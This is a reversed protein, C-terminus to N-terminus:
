KLKGSLMNSIQDLQGISLQNYTFDTPSQETTQKGTCHDILKLLYHQYQKALKAITAPTYQHRNYNFTMKLQGDNVMGNIDLTFARKMEPHIEIGVSLPSSQLLRQSSENSAEDFQGLYNFSIAPEQATRLKELPLSEQELTLYRLIGYGIGQNPVRRLGDKIEKLQYGLDDAHDINLIHPYMVTFWGVTRSIDINSFLSERGHGEVSVHIQSRGSWEYFTLGLATLLIDNIETNYAHNTQQLLRQTDEKSLTMVEERSDQEYGDDIVPMDQPLPEQKQSAWTNWYALEEIAKQENSYQDLRASWEAYSDSKSPFQISQKQLIQQYGVELDELLIRWSVGDVVLHHIVIFLQDEEPAQFLAARILPGQELNLSHQLRDAIQEIQEYAQTQSYQSYDHADLLYLHEEKISRHQASVIDKHQKYVMRLADHHEVVQQFVQNLVDIDIRNTSQLMVAQNYHQHQGLNYEFFRKQIPTLLAEGQVEDQSIQREVKEIYPAISVIDSYRFLDRIEMKLGQRNLRSAIQLAKISDGGYEFFNDTIGVQRIGLVEQWVNALIQQVETQPAEYAQTHRQNLDPEPLARRDIKGNATVPMHDLFVFHAPIMYEPVYLALFSRLEAIDVVQNLDPVIYACLEQGEDSVQRTMVHVESVVEHRFLHTEIEGLEIRYGRIKVQHDIRGLYEINGDPLWRALDGTRYMKQGPVFPNEIFKEATLEPRNLYGRALGVGSICLEGAVGIPQLHYQADVIFLQINDIPKGIPVKVVENTSPCDYYSVDVTAETPGYLNILEAGYHTAILRNFREVLRVPLAEGSAFVRRLSRIQHIRSSNELVDLFASLMSPVFHMTTVHHKEIETLIIEPDKEGGPPLLVVKAGVEGWWFLEWVSVDFSFPTKQLIVDETGLPYRNQMWQLRNIVSHHEIMAGKPRGTSGSTYIVYALNTSQSMPSLDHMHEDYMESEELIFTTGAFAISEGLHSQRLLWSTQSDELVFQIREEPHSPDIPLYAGGAKLIGLIGVVMELSREVMLGVIADPEVGQNRLKMALTNARANLETYTIQRDGCILAIHDPTKHVQKEWLQYLTDQEAYPAATHNFLFLQDQEEKQLLPIDAISTEPNSAIAILIAMYHNLMQQATEIRFLKTAYELSVILKDTFEEVNLTVDFKAIGMEFDVPRFTLDEVEIQKMGTNQLVFMVDFLPNRSVDRRLNLREVVEEFPIDQHEYATLTQQKTQELLQMFTQEPDIHTRIPLTNVFMGIIQEIDPHPRGAIPSGIVLDQQSTYRYLLSAYAALMVMYLTTGSKACLAYLERTLEPKLEQILSSGEFNKMVPRSWDTPLNLVPVDKGQDFLQEWYPLQKERTEEMMSQQWVAYDKYQIRLEPLEEQAYLRSFEEVFVEISIGDTIIHHMDALLIHHDNAVEILEVRLLPAQDLSFPRIFSEMLQAPDAFDDERYSVQFDVQPHIKQVPQGDVFHFSTRLSEHREVMAAFAKELRTQDLKGQLELVASMNYAQQTDGLQDIIFLRKQASSVDYYEQIPAVEIETYGTDEAGRVLPAMQRITPYAFVHRIPLEVGFQKTIRGVLMVAKLSHGGLEFFSDDIGVRNISLVDEWIQAMEVETTNRPKAYSSTTIPSDTPAPLAKRDIKGNPTLPLTELHVFHAPIMYVPLQALLITRLVQIDITGTVYACLYKDGQEDRRDTVIAQEVMSQALLVSEIEGLEIRYGRIKVQYDIRGIFDVQGDPLWRALDGTRYLRGKESFPNTIFKEASLETRNLYGRAVSQGGICLEGAVGVPVPRLYQDVIYFSHNALPRGIPVNGSVPLHDADEEYFSSDIAAETVGYSNMIRMRSGFRELLVRYDQVSCSDSSTILLKMTDLQIHQEYIEKMLPLILAPTSEFVTIQHKVLYQSLASPDIRVDQPCIVMTGGNLFTRAMDGAFVDFSFSAIQLLKVAFEKLRYDDRYGYATNVYQGHEIMVGKANGTTGSTYIIYALDSDDVSENEVVATTEREKLQDIYITQGTYNSNELASVLYSQSILLATGSDQLMYAIRESPYTPDVPIYAGGSKMVALAAIIMQASREVLIAVPHGRRVGQQQLVQALQNARANLENYSLEEYEDIVAIHDPTLLAQQEFLAHFTTPVRDTHPGSWNELIIMSEEKTMMNIEILPREPSQIAQTLVQILHGEIQKMISEDYKQRNYSLLITFQEADEIEINFDYPTQESLHANTIHFGLKEAWENQQVLDQLPYNEFVMIHDLLQQKLESRSQIEALSCYDYTQAEIMLQRIHRFLQAFTQESSMQIRVPITNIFSGVMREIGQIQPPRGSIVTGFVVDERQNYRGLIVGWVALFLNSVTVGYSESTQRLLRSLPVSLQFSYEGIEYSSTPKIQFDSKGTLTSISPITSQQDYGQLLNEWYSQAEEENQQELWKVYQSYMVPEALQITEGNRLAAYITLLEELVIGLCWGDMIIHHFTFLITYQETGTHLVSIRILLDKTLDFPTQRDKKIQEAVDDSTHMGDIYQISISREKFIIQRPRAMNKHYLNSRLTEHRQIVTQMSQELMSHDLEGTISLQVQEIYASSDPEMMSHFLMGEQLPTLYVMKEIELRKSM